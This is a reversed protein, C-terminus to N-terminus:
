YNIFLIRVTSGVIRKDQDNLRKKMVEFLLSM